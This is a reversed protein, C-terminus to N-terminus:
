KKILKENKQHKIFEFPLGNFHNPIRNPYMGLHPNLGVGLSTKNHNM